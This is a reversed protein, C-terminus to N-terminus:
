REKPSLLRNVPQPQQGSQRELLETTHETVSPASNCAAEPLLERTTPSPALGASQFEGKQSLKNRLSHLYLSLAATMGIGFLIKAVVVIKLVEIPNREVLLVYLFFFLVSCFLIVGTGLAALNRLWEIVRSQGLLNAQTITTQTLLYQAVQELHLGCARCFKQTPLAEAGCNPCFM